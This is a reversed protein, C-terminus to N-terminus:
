TLSFLLQWAKLSNPLKMRCSTTMNLQVTTVNDILQTVNRVVLNSADIAVNDRLNEFESILNAVIDAVQTKDQDM